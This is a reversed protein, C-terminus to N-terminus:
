RDVRAGGGGLLRDLFDDMTMEPKSNADPKSTASAKDAQANESQPQNAQTGTAQAPLAAITLLCAAIIVVLGDM